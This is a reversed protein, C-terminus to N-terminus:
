DNIKKYLEKNDLSRIDIITLPTPKNNPKTDKTDETEVVTGEAQPTSEKITKVAVQSKVSAEQPSTVRTYGPSTGLM